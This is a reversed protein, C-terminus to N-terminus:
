HPKPKYGDVAFNRTAGPLAFRIGDIEPKAEIQCGLRSTGTLGFALDLMDNEEDTPDPLRNYYDVDAVILHCTSCACSGECAGELEIDNSLAAELMNTGVPVKSHKQTGDTEVFTVNITQEEENGDECSDTASTTFRYRHTQPPLQLPSKIRCSSVHMYPTRPVLAYKGQTLRRIAHAGLGSFRSVWM